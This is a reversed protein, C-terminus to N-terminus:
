IDNVQSLLFILAQVVRCLVWHASLALGIRLSVLTIPVIYIETASALGSRMAGASQRVSLLMRELLEVDDKQM